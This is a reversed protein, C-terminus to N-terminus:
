TNGLRRRRRGALLFALVVLLAQPLGGRDSPPASCGAEGSVQVQAWAEPDAPDLTVEWGPQVVVPKKQPTTRHTLMARGAEARLRLSDGDRALEASARGTTTLEAGGLIELRFVGSVPGRWFPDTEVLAVGEVLERRGDSHDLRFGNTTVILGGKALVCEGTWVEPDASPPTTRCCCAVASVVVDTSGSLCQPAGDPWLGVADGCNKVEAKATGSAGAVVMLPPATLPSLRLCLLAVLGAARRLTQRPKHAKKNM